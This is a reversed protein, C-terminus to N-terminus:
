GAMEDFVERVRRLVRSRATRIAGATMGLEEAVAATERGDIATAWFAQWTRPEFGARVGDLARRLLLPREPAPADSSSSDAAPAPKQELRQQFDSGGLAEPQRGHLRHHDAIRTRTITSLWAVFSGSGHDRRFTSVNRTVAQFVEQVVNDAD